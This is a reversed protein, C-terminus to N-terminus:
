EVKEENNNRWWVLWYLLMFPYVIMRDVFSHLVLWEIGLGLLWLGFWFILYLQSLKKQDAKKWKKLEEVIDKAVKLGQWILWIFCCLWPILWLFWYEMFIQVYQNEPNYGYTTIEYKSNIERIIDCRENEDYDYCLQHSAPWSYGAWWWAFPKELGLNVGEALLVIHGTNSHTRMFIDRFYWLWCLCIICAPIWLYILIKKTYKWYVLLLIIATEWLWVWMAARSLTSFVLFWFWLTWLIQYKRTQKRLYGFAFVPWFAILFFWFSIPREFLFQNRILGRNIETYYVAPPNGWITGEFSTRSYWFLSLAWPVLYLILWWFIGWFITFKLISHYLTDYKNQLLPTYWALGVWLLFILFGLLDYKVSLIYTGLWVRQVLVALVFSIILTALFYIGFRFISNKRLENYFDKFGKNKIAIFIWSWVLLIFLLIIIEKWLWVVKWFWGDWWLRFTVFTQLFFQVLLWVLFIKILWDIIVPIKKKM